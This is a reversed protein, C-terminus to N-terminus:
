DMEKKEKEERWRKIKKETRRKRKNGTARTRHLTTIVHLLNNIQFFFSDTWQPRHSAFIMQSSSCAKIDLLCQKTICEQIVTMMQSLWQLFCEQILYFVDQVIGQWSDVWGYVTTFMSDFYSVVGSWGNKRKCEVIWSDIGLLEADLSCMGM